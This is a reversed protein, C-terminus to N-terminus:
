VFAVFFQNAQLCVLPLLQGSTSKNKRNFINESSESIPENSRSSSEYFDSKKHVLKYLGSTDLSMDPM